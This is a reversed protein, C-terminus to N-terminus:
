MPEAEVQLQKVFEHLPMGFFDSIKGSPVFGHREYFRIARKLPATTDLTIRHCGAARINDEARHLLQLAINRGHWGPLVAMGRIHGIQGTVACAVTGIIQGDPAVAAYITMHAIRDLVGQPNLVTDAFAGVTYQDRFPAFASELCEAIAAADCPQAKRILSDVSDEDPPNEEETAM